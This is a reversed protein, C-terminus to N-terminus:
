ARNRKKAHCRAESARSNCEDFFDIAAKRVDYLNQINTRAKRSEKVLHRKQIRKIEGM